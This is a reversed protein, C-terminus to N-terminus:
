RVVSVSDTITACRSDAVIRLRGPVQPTLQLVENFLALEPPCTAQGCSTFTGVVRLHVTSQNQWSVDISKLRYCLNSGVQGKIRVAFASGLDASDPAILSDVCGLVDTTM